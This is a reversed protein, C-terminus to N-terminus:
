STLSFEIMEDCVNCKCYGIIVKDHPRPIKEWELLTNVSTPKPSPIPTPVGPSAAEKSGCSTVQDEWNCRQTDADYLMGDGCEYPGDISGGTICYVYGTCDETAEYHSFSSDACQKFSSSDSTAEITKKPKIKVEACNRKHLLSLNYPFLYFYYTM